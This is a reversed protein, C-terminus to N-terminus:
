KLLSEFDVGKPLFLYDNQNLSAPEWKKLALTKIKEAKIQEGSYDVQHIQYDLENMLDVIKDARNQMKYLNDESHSDLIECVIAPRHKTITYRMGLLAELEGGEVDIKVLAISKITENANFKDFSFLPVFMANDTNYFGPRLDSFATAASDVENKLYFKSVYNDASLGVPVITANLINNEKILQNLYYVCSPNPEFGWYREECCSRYKLLTQGINVGIDVFSTNEAINISRLLKLFWDDNSINRNQFGINKIIPIIFKRRGLVLSTNFNFRSLLLKVANKFNIPITVAMKQFQM